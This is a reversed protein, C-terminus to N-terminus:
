NLSSLIEKFKDIPLNVRAQLLVVEEVENIKCVINTIKENSETALITISSGQNNINIYEEYRDNILANDLDRLVKDNVDGILAFRSAKLYKALPKLEKHSGTFQYLLKPVRMSIIKDSHQEYFTDLGKNKFSACSVMLYGIALLYGYKLIKM